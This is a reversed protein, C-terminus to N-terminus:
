GLYFIGKSILKKMLVEKGKKSFYTESNSLLEPGEFDRDSESDYWSIISVKQNIPAVSLYERQEKRLLTQSQLSSM